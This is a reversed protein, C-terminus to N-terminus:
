ELLCLSTGSILANHKVKINLMGAKKTYKYSIKIESSERICRLKYTIYLDRLWNILFIDRIM